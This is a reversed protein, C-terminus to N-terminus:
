IVTKKVEKFEGDVIRYKKGKIDITEGEKLKTLEYLDMEMLHLSGKTKRVVNLYDTNISGYVGCLVIKVPKKISSVLRIDKVPAWNDAIMVISDCTSCLEIASILAEINNEAADGGGGNTMAKEITAEVEAYKGTTIPYIGGTSGIIKEEDMKADGDNFFVFARRQNDTMVLKLWLLLQGSYPYMSGTVDAIIMASKWQHRKFVESVTTDISNYNYVGDLFECGDKKKDLVYYASDHGDLYKFYSSTDILKDKKADAVSIRTVTRSYGEILPAYKYFTDVYLSYQYCYNIATDASSKEKDIGDSKIISNLKKIESRTVEKGPLPRYYIYFGHTLYLAEQKTTAETQRIKNFTIKEDAFAGPLLKYLSQLRKRSLTTFDAKAPYDSYVLDVGAIIASKLESIAALQNLTFDSKGYELPLYIVQSGSLAMEYYPIKTEPSKLISEIKNQSILLSSILLCLMLLFCRQM